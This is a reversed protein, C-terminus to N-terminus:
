FVSLFAIVPLGDSLSPLSFQDYVDPVIPDYPFGKYITPTGAFLGLFGGGGRGLPNGGSAAWQMDDGNRITRTIVGGINLTWGLGVWSAEEEVTVGSSHYSLSVPINVDRYQVNFLPININPVGTYTSVPINGYKGLAAADPPPPIITQTQQGFANLKILLLLIATLNIIGKMNM